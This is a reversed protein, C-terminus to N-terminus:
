PSQSFILPGPSLRTFNADMEREEVQSLIYYSCVAGSSVVRFQVGELWLSFYIKGLSSKILYKIM